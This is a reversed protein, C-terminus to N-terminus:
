SILLAYILIFDVKDLQAWFKQSSQNCLLVTAFCNEYKKPCKSSGLFIM